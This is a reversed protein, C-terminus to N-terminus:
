TQLSWRLILDPLEVRVHHQRREGRAQIGYKRLEAPPLISASPDRGVLLHGVTDEADAGITHDGVALRRRAKEDVATWRHQPRRIEVPSVNRPAVRESGNDTFQCESGSHVHRRDLPRRFAIARLLAEVVEEPQAATLQVSLCATWGTRVKLIPAEWSLRDVLEFEAYNRSLEKRLVGEFRSAIGLKLDNLRSHKRVATPRPPEASSPSVFASPDSCSQARESRSESEEV